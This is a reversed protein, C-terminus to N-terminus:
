EDEEWLSFIGVCVGYLTMGIAVGWWQLSLFDVNAVNLVLLFSGMAPPILLYKM